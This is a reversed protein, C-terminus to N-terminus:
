RRQADVGNFIAFQVLRDCHIKRHQCPRRQTAAANAVRLIRTLLIDSSRKGRHKREEERENAMALMAEALKDIKDATRREVEAIANAHEARLTAERAEM